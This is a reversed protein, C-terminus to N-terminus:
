AVKTITKKPRLWKAFTPVTAAEGGETPAGASWDQGGPAWGVSRAVQQEKVQQAGSPATDQSIATTAFAPSARQAGDRKAKAKAVLKAEM